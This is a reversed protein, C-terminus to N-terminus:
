YRRWVRRTVVTNGAPGTVSGYSYGRYPGRAVAGSRSWTEGNPGVVEVQRSCGYPGCQGTAYRAGGNPGVWSNTWGGALAAGSTLLLLTAASGAIAFSKKM